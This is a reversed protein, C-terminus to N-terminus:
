AHARHSPPRAASRRRVLVGAGAGTLIAGALALVGAPGGTGPLRTTATTTPSGSAHTVVGQLVPGQATITVQVPAATAIVQQGRTVESGDITTTVTRPHQDYVEVAFAHVGPALREFTVPACGTDHRCVLQTTVSTADPTVHVLRLGTGHAGQPLPPRDVTVAATAGDVTVDFGDQMAAAFGRVLLDLWTAHYGTDFCHPEDSEACVAAGGVLLDGVDYPADAAFDQRAFYAGEEYRSLQRFVAEVTLPVPLGRYQLVYGEGGSCSSEFAGDSCVPPLDDARCTLVGAERGCAASGAATDATGDGDTDAGLDLSAATLTAPADPFAVVLDLQGTFPDVTAQRAEPRTWWGAVPAVVVDDVVLVESGLDVTMAYTGAPPASGLSASCVHTLRPRAADVAAECTMTGAYATTGSGPDEVTVPTLAAAPLSPVDFLEVHLSAVVTEPDVEIRATATPPHAAVVQSDTRALVTGGGWAVTDGDIARVEVAPHDNVVQLWVEQPGEGLGDLVLDTCGPGCSVVRRDSPDDVPGHVIELHVGHAGVPLSAVAASVRATDGDRLVDVYRVATPWSGVFAAMWATYHGAERCGAHDATACVDTSGLVFEDLDVTAGLPVGAAQDAAGDRAGADYASLQRFAADHTVGTRHGNVVIEYVHRGAECVPADFAGDVCLPPLPASGTSCAVTPGEDVCTLGSAETEPAGDGDGDVWAAADLPREAAPVATFSVALDTVGTDPDTVVVPAGLATWWEHVFPAVTVTTIVPEALARTIIVTYTGPRTLGPMPVDCRHSLGPEGVVGVRPCRVNYAADYHEGDTAEVRLTRDSEDLDFIEVEVVVHGLITDGHATVQVTPDVAALATVPPLTAAAFALLGLVVRVM